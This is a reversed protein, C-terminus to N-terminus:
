QKELIGKYVNKHDNIKWIYLGTKLEAINIPSNFHTNIKNILKGDYTYLEIHINESTAFTFIIENSAPNPVLLPKLNMKEQFETTNTALYNYEQNGDKDLKIYYLDIQKTPYNFDIRDCLVICGSDPTALIKPRFYKADYGIYKKWLLINSQDFKMIIVLNETSDGSDDIVTTAYRCNQYYLNYNNDNTFLFKLSNTANYVSDHYVKRKIFRKADSGQVADIQSVEPTASPVVQKTHYYYTTDPINFFPEKFPGPAVNLPNFVM